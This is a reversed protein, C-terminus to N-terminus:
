TGDHQELIFKNYDEFIKWHRISDAMKQVPPVTLLVIRNTQPKLLAIIKKYNETM